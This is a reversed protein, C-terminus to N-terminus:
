KGDVTLGARVLSQAPVEPPQCVQGSTEPTVQPQWDVQSAKVSAAITNLKMTVDQNGAVEGHQWGLSYAFACSGLLLVAFCAARLVSSSNEMVESM